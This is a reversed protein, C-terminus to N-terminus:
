NVKEFKPMSVKINKDSHQEFIHKYYEGGDPSVCAIKKDPYLSSLYKCVFLVSGTTIGVSIGEKKYFDLCEYISTEDPVKVAYDILRKSEVILKPMYSLGSGATIYPGEKGGFIMSGAPEVAVICINENKEKLYQSMGAITGGSGVSCVLFDIKGNMQKYLEPGTTLYHAMSNARNEYQNTWVWSEKKSLQKAFDIRASRFDRFEGKDVIKYSIGQKMLENLKYKSVTEDVLCLFNIGLKNAFYGLGIGLNGSSSEVLNEVNRTSVIDKIIFYATRSKICKNLNEGELKVFVNKNGAYKECCVVPTEIFDYEEYRLLEGIAM